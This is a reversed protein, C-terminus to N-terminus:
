DYILEKDVRKSLKKLAKEEIQKIRVLSLGMRQSVEDLTMPGREDAAVLSCNLDREYSIWYRCVSNECSIGSEECEEKCKKSM